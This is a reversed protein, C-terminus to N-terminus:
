DNSTVVFGFNQLSFNFVRQLEFIGNIPQRNVKYSIAGGIVACFDDFFVGANMKKM